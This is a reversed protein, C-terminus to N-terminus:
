RRRSGSASPGAPARATVVWANRRISLASREPRMRRAAGSEGRLALVTATIVDASAAVINMHNAEAMAPPRARCGGAGRGLAGADIYAWGLVTLGGAHHRARRSCSVRQMADQLWRVALDTEDLSGRRPLPEGCPRSKLRRIPSRACTHLHAPKQQEAPDISARIWLRHSGAAACAGLRGLPVESKGTIGLVRSSPRAAPPNGPVPLRSPPQTRSREGLRRDPPDPAAEEVVSILASLAATRRGSWALAWGAEHRRRDAATGPGGHGGPRSRRSRPGLGGPRHFPPRPPPPWGRAQDAPDPSLEAAREMALAAAAAGGHQRVQAATAELLSAQRARGTAPAAAALHWASAPRATTCPRPSAPPAGSRRTARLAHLTSPRVSSPHLVAAAPGDVKVLGLQEAALALLMWALATAPPRPWTRAM